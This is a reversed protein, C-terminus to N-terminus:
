QEMKTNKRLYSKLGKIIVNKNKGVFNLDIDSLEDNGGKCCSGSALIGLVEKNNYFNEIINNAITNIEPLKHLKYNKM